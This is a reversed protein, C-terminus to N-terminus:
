FFCFNKFCSKYYINQDYISYFKRTIQGSVWWLGILLLVMQELSDYYTLRGIKLYLAITFGLILLIFSASLRRYQFSSKPLRNGQNGYNPDQYYFGILWRFTVPIVAVLFIFYRPIGSFEKLSVVLSLSFLTFIFQMLASHTRDKLVYNKPNFYISFFFSIVIYFLFFSVHNYDFYVNGSDFYYVGFFVLTIVLLNFSYFIM